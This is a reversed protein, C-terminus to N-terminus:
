AADHSHTEPYTGYARVVRELRDRTQRGVVIVLNQDIAALVVDLTGIRRHAVRLEKLSGQELGFQALRERPLIFISVREADVLGHVYAAPADGLEFVGGGRVAFGADQRPPCRVPFTVRNKLYAEVALDSESEFQLSESGGALREHHVSMLGTLDPSDTTIERVWQWTAIIALLSAAVALFRLLPLFPRSEQSNGIPLSREIRTWLEPSPSVERLRSTVEGEFGQQEDFWQRCAPCRALHENLDRYLQSDGESDHYLEWNSRISTCNM